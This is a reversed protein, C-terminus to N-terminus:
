KQVLYPVYLKPVLMSSLDSNLRNRRKKKKQTVKAKKRM